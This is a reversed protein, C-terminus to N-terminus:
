LQRQDLHHKIHSDYAHKEFGNFMATATGHSKENGADGVMPFM